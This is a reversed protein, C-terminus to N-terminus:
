RQSAYRHKVHTNIYSNLGRGAVALSKMHEVNDRGASAYTFTEPSRM